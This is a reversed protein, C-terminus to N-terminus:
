IVVPGFAILTENHIRFHHATGSRGFTLFDLPYTKGNELQPVWMIGKSYDIQDPAESLLNGTNFDYLGLLCNYSILILYNQGKDWIFDEITNSVGSVLMKEQGSKMDVVYLESGHSVFLRDADVWKARKTRGAHLDLPVPSFDDASLISISGYRELFAVINRQPNYALSWLAFSHPSSFTCLKEGTELNLKYGYGDETCVFLEPKDEVIALDRIASGLNTLRRCSNDKVVFIDGDTRGLVLYGTSHQFDMRKTYTGSPLELQTKKVSFVPKLAMTDVDTISLRLLSEGEGSLLIDGNNDTVGTWLADPTNKIIGISKQSDVNVKYLGGNRVQLILISPQRHLTKIWRCKFPAKFVINIPNCTVPDVEYVNRDFSTGFARSSVPNFSVQEFHDETFRPGVILKKEDCINLRAVLRGDSAVLYDDGSLHEIGHVNKRDIQWSRLVEGQNSLILKGDGSGSLVMDSDHVYRATMVDHEAHLRTCRLLHIDGMDNFELELVGGNGSRTVIQRKTSHFALTQAISVIYDIHETDNSPRVDRISAVCLPKLLGNKDYTWVSVTQDQSSCSIYPLTPHAAMAIITGAHAQTEGLISFSDIDIVTIQGSLNGAFVWREEPDMCFSEFKQAAQM